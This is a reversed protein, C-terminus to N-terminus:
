TLWRINSIIHLLMLAHLFLIFLAITPLSYVLYMTPDHEDRNVVMRSKMKDFTRDVLFDRCHVKKIGGLEAPLM